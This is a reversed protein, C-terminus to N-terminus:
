ISFNKNCIWSKFLEAGTFDGPLIEVRFEVFSYGSSGRINDAIFNIFLFFKHLLGPLLGRYHSTVIWINDKFPIIRTVRKTYM